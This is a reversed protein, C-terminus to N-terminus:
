DISIIDGGFVDLADSVEQKEKVKQKSQEDIKAIEERMDVRPVSTQAVSNRSSESISNDAGIRSVVIKVTEPWIEKASNLIIEVSKEEKLKEYAFNPALCLTIIGEPSKKLTASDMFSSIIKSSKEVVSRLKSLDDSVSRTTTSSTTTKPLVSPRPSTPTVNRRVPVVVSSSPELPRPSASRGAIQNGVALRKMGAIKQELLEIRKELAESSFIEEGLGLKILESELMIRAQLSNRLTMLIREVRSVSGILYRVGIEKIQSIIENIQETPLDLIQNANPDIKLLMCRRLYELLDRAITLPEYGKVYLENLVKVLAALDHEFVAAAISKLTSYSLRRTMELVQELTIKESISSSSIQDLISLADRFGGEACEAIMSLAEPEFDPFQGSEHEM